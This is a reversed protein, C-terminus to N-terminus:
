SINIALSSFSWFLTNVIEVSAALSNELAMSDELSFSMAAKGSLVKPKEQIHDAYLRNLKLPGDKQVDESFAYYKKRFGISNSPITTKGAEARIKGEKIIRERTEKLHPSISWEYFPMVVSSTKAAECYQLAPLDAEDKKGLIHQLQGRAEPFLDTSFTMLRKFVSPMPANPDDVEELQPPVLFDLAANFIKKQQETLSSAYDELEELDIEERKEVSKTRRRAIPSGKKRSLPSWSSARDEILSTKVRRRERGIEEVVSSSEKRWDRRRQPSESSSRESIPSYNRHKVVRPSERQRSPSKLVSSPQRSRSITSSKLRSLPSM